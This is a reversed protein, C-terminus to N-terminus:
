KLFDREVFVCLGGIITPLWFSLFRDVLSISVGAVTTFDFSIYLFVMTGDVSGVGGPLLPLIGVLPGATQVVAVGMFPMHYGLAAVVLYCRLILFFWFVFSVSLSYMLNRKQSSFKRLANHYQDVAVEIREQYDEARKFFKSVLRLLLNVLKKAAKVNLSFYLVLSLLFLNFFFVLSLIIMMQTSIEMRLAFYTLFIAIIVMFPISDLIRDVVVTAFADEIPIHAKKEMYYARFPEGGARAVPTINSFFMGILIGKIVTTFTVPQFPRLLIKWRLSWLLIAIVQCAAALVVIPRAHYLVDIVEGIGALHMMFIIVSVGALLLIVTKARSM